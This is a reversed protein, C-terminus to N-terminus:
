IADCSNTLFISDNDDYKNAAVFVVIIIIIIIIIHYECSFPTTIYVLSNLEDSPTFNNEFYNGIEINSQRVYFMYYLCLLM